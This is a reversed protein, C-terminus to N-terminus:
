VLTLGTPKLPDDNFLGHRAPLDLVRLSSPIKNFLHNTLSAIPGSLTLTHIRPPLHDFIDNTLHLFSIDLRTITHPLSHLHEPRLILAQPNMKYYGELNAAFPRFRLTALACPMHALYNPYSAQIPLYVLEEVHLTTLSKPLTAFDEAEKVQLSNIYLSELQPPVSTFDKTTWRQSSRLDLRTLFRPLTPAVTNSWKTSKPLVLSLLNKPLYPLCSPTVLDNDLLSFRTLSTPLNLVMADTFAQWGNLQLEELCPLYKYFPIEKSAEQELPTSTARSTDIPQTSLARWIWESWQFEFRISVLGSPLSDPRLVTLSQQTCIGVIEIDLSRIKPLKTFISSPPLGRRGNGRVTLTSVGGFPGLQASFSRDGCMLLKAISSGDLFITICQLIDIQAKRLILSSIPAQPPVQPLSDNGILNLSEELTSIEPHAVDSM